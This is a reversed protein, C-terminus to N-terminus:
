CSEKRADCLELALRALGGAIRYAGRASFFGALRTCVRHGENERHAALLSRKMALVSRAICGPCLLPPAATDGEFQLLCKSSADAVLHGRCPALLNGEGDIRQLVSQFVHYARLQAAATADPHLQFLPAAFRSRFFRDAEKRDAAAELIPAILLRSETQQEYAEDQFPRAAACISDWEKRDAPGVVPHLVVTAFRHKELFRAAAEACARAAAGPVYVHSRWNLSPLTEELWRLTKEGPQSLVFVSDPPMM